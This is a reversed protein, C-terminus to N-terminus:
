NDNNLTLICCPRQYEEKLKNAILGRLEPEVENNQLLIVLIKHSDLKERKIKEELKEIGEDQAKTQRKKANGVVRIAQTLITEMDGFKHGRKTSPIKQNEKFELMANFVVEKEDQTGFRTIANVFPVIYFSISFPTLENGISFANKEVMAAIFPNIINNLGKKILYRNEISRLSMIDGILGIAVLDLFDDACKDSNDLMKDIYKCFQWAVGM